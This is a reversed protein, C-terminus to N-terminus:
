SAGLLWVVDDDLRVAEVRWVSAAQPAASQQERYLVDDRWELDPEDEADVRILRLRWFDEAPGIVSM